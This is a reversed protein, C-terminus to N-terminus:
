RMWRRTRESFKRVSRNSVNIAANPSRDIREVLFGLRLAGMILSGNSIYIRSYHECIHKLGYSSSYPNVKATRELLGLWATAVAVERALLEDTYDSQDWNRACEEASDQYGRPSLLLPEFEERLTM